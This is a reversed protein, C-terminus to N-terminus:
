LQELFDPQNAMLKRACCQQYTPEGEVAHKINKGTIEKVKCDGKLDAHWLGRELLVQAHIFTYYSHSLRLIVCEWGVASLSLIVQKMGKAVGLPWSSSEVVMGTEAVKGQGKDKFGVLVEDGVAFCMNQVVREGLSNVYWGDRMKSQAGGPNLNMLNAVLADPAMIGHCKSNDFLFVGVLPQGDEGIHTAEFIPIVLDVFQAVVDKGTWYGDRNQTTHTQTRLQSTLKNTQKNSKSQPKRLFSIVLTTRKLPLYSPHQYPSDISISACADM